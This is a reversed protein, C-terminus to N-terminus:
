FLEQGMDSLSPPLFSVSHNGGLKELSRLQDHSSLGEQRPAPSMPVQSPSLFGSFTLVEGKESSSQFQDLIAPNWSSFSTSNTLNDQTKGNYNLWM